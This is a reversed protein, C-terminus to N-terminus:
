VRVTSTPGRERMFADLLSQPVAPDIGLFQSTLELQQKDDGGGPSLEQVSVLAIAAWPQPAQASAHTHTHMHQAAAAVHDDADPKPNCHRSEILPATPTVARAIYFVDRATIVVRDATVAISIVPGAKVLLRKTEAPQLANIIWTPVSAGGDDDDGGGGSDGGSSGETPFLEMVLELADGSRVTRSAALM